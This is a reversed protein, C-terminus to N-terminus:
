NTSFITYCPLGKPCSPAATKVCASFTERKSAEATTCLTRCASHATADICSFFNLTDCNSKCDAIASTGGDDGSTSSSSTGVTSPDGCASKIKDCATSNACDIQYQFAYKECRNLCETKDGVRILSCQVLKDCATTCSSPTAGTGVVPVNPDAKPQITTRCQPDCISNTACATFLDIQSASAKDCDGYCRAQEDASNCGFFKMKDCSSKCDTKQQATTGSSEGTPPTGSCALCVVALAGAISRLFM